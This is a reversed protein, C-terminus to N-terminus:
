WGRSGSNRERAMSPRVLEDFSDAKPLSNLVNDFAPKFSFFSSDDMSDISSASNKRNNFLFDFSDDKAERQQRQLLQQLGDSRMRNHRWPPVESTAKIEPLPILEPNPPPPPVSSSKGFHRVFAPSPPPTHTQNPTKLTPSPLSPSSNNKANQNALQSSLCKSVNQCQEFLNHREKQLTENENRLQTIIQIAKSLVCSKEMKGHSGVTTSLAEFQENVKQRNYKARCSKRMKERLTKSVPYPAAASRAKKKSNCAKRNRNYASQKQWRDVAYNVVDELTSNKGARGRFEWNALIQEFTAAEPLPGVNKGDRREASDGLSQFTEWFSVADKFSVSQGRRRTRGMGLPIAQEVRGSVPPVIQAIAFPLSAM